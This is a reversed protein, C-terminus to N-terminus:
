RYIEKLPICAIEYEDPFKEKIKAPLGDDGNGEFYIHAGRCACYGNIGHEPLVVLHRGINIRWSDSLKLLFDKPPAWNLSFVAYAAKLRDKEAYVLDVYKYDTEEKLHNEVRWDINTDKFLARVFDPDYHITPKLVITVKAPKHEQDILSNIMKILRPPDYRDCIIIADIQLRSQLRALKIGEEDNAFPQLRKLFCNEGQIIEFELGNEDYASIVNKYNKLVGQKCGTQTKGDFEAFVCERCSTIVKNKEESM